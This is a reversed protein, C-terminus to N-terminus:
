VRAIRRCDCQGAPVSREYYLIFGVGHEGVEETAPGAPKAIYTEIGEVFHESDFAAACQHKVVRIGGDELVDGSLRFGFKREPLVVQMGDGLAADVVRM